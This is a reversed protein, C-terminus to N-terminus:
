RGAARVPHQDPHKGQPGQQHARRAAHDIIKGVAIEVLVDFAGPLPRQRRPLHAAPFGQGQKGQETQRTKGQNQQQAFRQQDPERKRREKQGGGVGQGFTEKGNGLGIQPHGETETNGHGVGRLEALHRRLGPPQQQGVDEPRHGVIGFVGHDVAVVVELDADLGRRDGETTKVDGGDHEAVGRRQRQNGPDAAGVRQAPREVARQGDGGADHADM